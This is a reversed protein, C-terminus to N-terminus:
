KKKIEEYDADSIAKDTLHEYSADKQKVKNRKQWFSNLVRMLRRIVVWALIILVLNRM